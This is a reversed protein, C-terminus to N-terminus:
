QISRGYGTPHLRLSKLKITVFSFNQPTRRRSVLVLQGPRWQEDVPGRDVWNLEVWIQTNEDVCVQHHSTPFGHAVTELHKASRVCSCEIRCETGAVIRELSKDDRQRPQVVSIGDQGTKRGVNEPTKCDIIFAAARSM